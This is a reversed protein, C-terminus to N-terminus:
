QDRADAIDPDAVEVVAFPVDLRLNRSKHQFLTVSTLLDVKGTPVRADNAQAARALLRPTAFSALIVALVILPRLRGGAPVIRASPSGVPGPRGEASDFEGV